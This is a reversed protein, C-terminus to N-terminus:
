SFTRAFAGSLARSFARSFARPLTRSIVGPLTQFLTRPLERPFKFMNLLINPPTSPPISPLAGGPISPVRSPNSSHEPSHGPSHKPSHQLYYVGVLHMSVLSIAVSQCVLRDPNPAEGQGRIQTRFGARSKAWVAHGGVTPPCRAQPFKPASIQGRFQHRLVNCFNLGHVSSLAGAPCESPEQLV